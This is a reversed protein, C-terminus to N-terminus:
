HHTTKPTFMFGLLPQGGVLSSAVLLSQRGQRFTNRGELVGPVMGYGCFHGKVAVRGCVRCLQVCLHCYALVQLTFHMVSTALGATGLAFGVRHSVIFADQCCKTQYTWPSSAPTPLSLPSPANTLLPQPTDACDGHLHCSLCAHRSPVPCADSPTLVNCACPLALPAPSVCLALVLAHCSTYCLYLVASRLRFYFWYQVLALCICM